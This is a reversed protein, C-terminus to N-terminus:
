AAGSPDWFDSRLTEAQHQPLEYKM